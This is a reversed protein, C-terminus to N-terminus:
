GGIGYAFTLSVPVVILVHNKFATQGTPRTEKPLPFPRALGRSTDPMPRAKGLHVRPIGPIVVAADCHKVGIATLFDIHMVLASPQYLAHVRVTGLVEFGVVVLAAQRNFLVRQPRHRRILVVFGPAQYRQKRPVILRRGVLMVVPEYPTYSPTLRNPFILAIILAIDRALDIRIPM